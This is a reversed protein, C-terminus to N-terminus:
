GVQREPNGFERSQRNSKRDVAEANSREAFDLERYRQEPDDRDHDKQDQADRQKQTERQRRKTFCRDGVQPGLTAKERLSHHAEDGSEGDRQEYETVGFQYADSGGLRM